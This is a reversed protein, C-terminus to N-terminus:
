MLDCDSVKEEEKWGGRRAVRITANTCFYIQDGFVRLRNNMDGDFCRTRALSPVKPDSTFMRQFNRPATPSFHSLTGTKFTVFSRWRRASTESTLELSSYFTSGTERKLALLSNRSNAAYKINTLTRRLEVTDM